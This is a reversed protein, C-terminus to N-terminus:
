PRQPQEQHSSPDTPLLQELLGRFWTGDTDTSPKTLLMFNQGSAQWVAEHPGYRETLFAHQIDRGHINLAAHSNTTTELTM